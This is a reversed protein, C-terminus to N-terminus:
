ILYLINPVIMRPVKKYVVRKTFLLVYLLVQWVLNNRFFMVSMNTLSFMKKCNPHCNSLTIKKHMITKSIVITYNLKIGFYNSLSKPFQSCTLILVDWQYNDLKIPILSTGLPTPTLMCVLVISSNLHFHLLIGNQYFWAVWMLACWCTISNRSRWPCPFPMFLCHCNWPSIPWGM